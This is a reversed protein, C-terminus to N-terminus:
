RVSELLHLVRELDEAEEQDQPPHERGDEVQRRVRLLVSHAVVQRPVQDRDEVRRREEPPQQAPVQRHRHPRERQQRPAAGDVADHRQAPHAGGGVGGDDRQGHEEAEEGAADDAQHQGGNGVNRRARVLDARVHAHAGADDANGRECARGNGTREDRM